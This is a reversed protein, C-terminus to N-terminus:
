WCIRTDIWARDALEPAIGRLWNRFQTEIPEPIGDKPNDTRYRPLSITPHSRHYNTVFNVAGLKILGDEQPPFMIGPNDTFVNRTAGHYESTGGELHDIIPIDKYIEVEKPTLQIHGVTHGKAVLQGKMDLLSAAAAGAALIVIDAFYSIGSVSRAGICASKEDFLLQEVRGADGSIYVVGSEQAAHAMRTLASRANAWGAAHNWFSKWGKMGGTLAPWRNSVEKATIPQAQELGLEGATKVAHEVWPLSVESAAMIWGSRHYLGNFLGNPDRWIDSAETALRAYLPEPYDRRIVKNVDNGAAEFSPPASRDLVTVNRYGRQALHYATSTGFTGGGVILVSRKNHPSSM